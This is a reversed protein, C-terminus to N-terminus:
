ISQRYKIATINTIKKFALNFSSISNFGSEYAIAAIKYDRYQDLMLLRKAEEVRYRAIYQSFNEKEVQNIAQSLQKVTLGVKKSLETLTLEPNLFLKEKEMLVNLKNIYTKAQEYGLNSNAYKETEAKFLSPNNLAWASLFLVMGSFLFAGSLYPILGLLMGIYSLTMVITVSNAYILWKRVSLFASDYNNAQRLLWFLAYISYILLHTLLGGAITVSLTSQNNPIIPSFIIFCFSPLYHWYIQKNINQQRLYLYKVYFWLSPGIALLMALFVNRIRPDIPFYNFFLSKGIRLACALLYAVLFVNAKARQNRTILLFLGFFLAIIVGISGILLEIHKIIESEHGMSSNEINENALKVM